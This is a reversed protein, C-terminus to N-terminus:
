RPNPVARYFGIPSDTENTDVITLSGDPESLLQVTIPQWDSLNTSFQWQVGALVVTAPPASTGSLGQPRIQNTETPPVEPPANTEAPPPTDRPLHKKAVKIMTYAACGGVALVVVGLVFLLLVGGRRRQLKIQM